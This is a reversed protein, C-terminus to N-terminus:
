CAFACTPRVPSRKAPGRGQQLPEYRWKWVFTMGGLFGTVWVADVDVGGASRL